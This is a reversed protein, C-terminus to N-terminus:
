FYIFIFISYHDSNFLLITLIGARAVDLSLCEHNRVILIDFIGRLAALVVDKHEHPNDIVRHFVPFYCKIVDLSQSTMSRSNNEQPEFVCFLAACKIAELRILPIDSQVGEEVLSLLNLLFPDELTIRVASFIPDALLLSLLMLGRLQRQMRDMQGSSQLLHTLKQEVDAKEELLLAVEPGEEEIAFDDEESDYRCGYLFFIKIVLATFSPIPLSQCLAPLYM